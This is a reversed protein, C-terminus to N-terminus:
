DDLPRSNDRLTTESTNLADALRVQASGPRLPKPQSEAPAWGSLHLLDFSARIRGPDDPAPHAAAYLRAAEALMRRPVPARDRTALANTEGMGRLDRVLAPLDRYTVTLPEIDAVPLAFGARQLLGGMDRIEAMPAIRPSLGGRAAIEAAGMAERLESLTRGGFAVSLFLGDPRLARRCQILQGVPDDAWHLAMAHIVLDHAGSVLDLTDDDAVVRAGPLTDAWIRPHGTVIVPATFARKVLALRDLLQSRAERHLFLSDDTARARHLALAARDTLRPADTTM